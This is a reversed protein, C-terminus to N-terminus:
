RGGCSVVLSVVVCCVLSMQVASFRILVMADTSLGAASMGSSTATMHFVRSGVMRAARIAESDLSASPPSLFSADPPPASPRRALAEEPGRMSSKVALRIPPPLKVLRM